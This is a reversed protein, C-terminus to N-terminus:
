EGKFTHFNFNKKRREIGVHTKNGGGAFKFSLTKLPSVGGASAEKM